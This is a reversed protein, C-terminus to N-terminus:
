RQNQTRSIGCGSAAVARAIQAIGRDPQRRIPIQSFCDQLPRPARTKRRTARLSLSQPFDRKSRGTSTRRPHNRRLFIRHRALDRRTANCSAPTGFRVPQPSSEPGSASVILPASQFLRARQKCLPIPIKSETESLNHHDYSLPLAGSQPEPQQPNSDRRGGPRRIQWHAQLEVPYLKQSRILLNPTRIGGPVGSKALKDGNHRVYKPRSAGCNIICCAVRSRFACVCLCLASEMQSRILLVVIAAFLALNEATRAILVSHVPKGFFSAAPRRSQVA